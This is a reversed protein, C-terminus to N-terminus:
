NAIIIQGESLTMAKMPAGISPVGCTGMGSAVELVEVEDYDCDFDYRLEGDM